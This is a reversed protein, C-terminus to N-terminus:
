ESRFYDTTANYTFLDFGQGVINPHKAHSDFSGSVYIYVILQHDLNDGHRFRYEFLLIKRDELIGNTFCHGTALNSNAPHWSKSINGIQKGLYQFTWIDRLNYALNNM